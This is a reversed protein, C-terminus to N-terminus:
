LIILIFYYCLYIFFIKTQPHGLTTSAGTRGCERVTGLDLGSERYPRGKRKDGDIKGM